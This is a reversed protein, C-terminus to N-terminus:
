FCISGKAKQKQLQLINQKGLFILLQWRGLINYAGKPMEIENLIQYQNHKHPRLFNYYSVWLALDFDSVDIHNFFQKHSPLISIPM